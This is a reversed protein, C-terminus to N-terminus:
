PLIGIGPWQVLRGTVFVVDPGVLSTAGVSLAEFDTQEWAAYPYDPEGDVGFSIIAYARANSWFRYPHGWPDLVPLVRIYIPSLDSEISSLVAILIKRVTGNGNSEAMEEHEPEVSPAEDTM